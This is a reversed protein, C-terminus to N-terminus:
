ERVMKIKHAVHRFVEDGLVDIDCDECHWLMSNFYGLYDVREHCYGCFTGGVVDTEILVIKGHSKECDHLESLKM